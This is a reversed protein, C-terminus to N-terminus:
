LRRRQKLLTPHDFEELKAPSKVSAAPSFLAGICLAPHDIKPWQNDLKWLGNRWRIRDSHDPAAPEISFFPAFQWRAPLSRNRDIPFNLM